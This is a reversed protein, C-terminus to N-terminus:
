CVEYTLVDVFGSSGWFVTVMAVMTVVTVCEESGPCDSVVFEFRVKVVQQFASLVLFPVSM